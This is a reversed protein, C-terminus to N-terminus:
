QGIPTGIADIHLRAHGVLTKLARLNGIAHLTGAADLTGVVSVTGADEVNGGAAGLTDARGVADLTGVAWKSTGSRTARASRASSERPPCCAPSPPSPM